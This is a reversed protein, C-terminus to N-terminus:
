ISLFTLHLTLEVYAECITLMLFSGEQSMKIFNLKIEYAKFLTERDREQRQRERAREEGRRHSSGLALMRGRLIYELFLYIDIKFWLCKKIKIWIKAIKLELFIRAPFREYRYIGQYFLFMPLKKKLIGWIHNSIGGRLGGGVTGFINRPNPESM